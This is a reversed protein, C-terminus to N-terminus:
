DPQSPNIIFKAGFTEISRNSEELIWNYEILQRVAAIVDQKTSLGSRGARYVERITFPSTITGDKIQALLAHAKVVSSDLSRSYICESHASCYEALDIAMTLSEISVVNGDGPIGAYRECLEFLMSLAPVVGDLKNRYQILGPNSHTAKKQANHFMWNKYKDMSARGFRFELPLPNISSFSGGPNFALQHLLGRFDNMAQVNPPQDTFTFDLPQDSFTALCFRQLFGDAMLNDLIGTKSLKDLLAPQITGCITVCTNDARITGRQIRDQTQAMDGSWATKLLHRLGTMSKKDFSEFLSFLEDVYLMLGNPNESMLALLKEPTADNVLYRLQLKADLPTGPDSYPEHHTWPADDDGDQAAWSTAAKELGYVERIVANAAPSKKTGPPAVNMGWFNTYVGWPDKQKPHMVAKAGLAAGAACIAPVAVYEIPINMRFAVDEAFRSIVRPLMLSNMPPVKPKSPLSIAPGDFTAKGCYNKSSIAIKVVEDRELPPRCRGLNNLGLCNLVMSTSAGQRFLELGMSFLTNNREGEKIPNSNWLKSHETPHSTPRRKPICSILKQPICPLAKPDVLPRQADWVYDGSVHVSPPAVIYGGDAKVDVGPALQKVNDIDESPCKFLVHLGGGGTFAVATGCLDADSLGFKKWTAFGGHRKDVDAVWLGSAKGTVIGINAEPHAKFFRILKEKDTSGGKYGNKNMPHKGPSSCKPYGCACATILRSRDGDRVKKIIIGWIPIVPICLSAYHLAAEVLLRSRDSRNPAEFSRSM